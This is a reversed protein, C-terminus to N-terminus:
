WARELLLLDLPTDMKISLDDGQVSEEESASSFPLNRKMLPVRPSVLIVRALRYAGLVFWDEKMADERELSSCNESPERIKPPSKLMARSGEKSM